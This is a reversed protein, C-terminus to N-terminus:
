PAQPRSVDVARPCGAVWPEAGPVGLVKHAALDLRELDAKIQPAEQQALSTLRELTAVLEDLRREAEKQLEFVAGSVIEQWQTTLRSLNKFTEDAIRRRFRQFVARRLLAMPILPSLMEWSHDFARGIKIDPRRPPKPTIDPETTRLPVGYVTMMREALRDRFEQLLRLCQRRVDALPQVFEDRKAASVATLKETLASAMWDDFTELLKAFSSPFAESEVSFEQLLDRRIADEEPALAKEIVQRSGAAAHRAILQLSFKTDKLGQREGLVQKQLQARESDLLEASRLTLRIYDGCERLLTGTKRDIIARRETAIDSAAKDIFGTEFRRRLDEYGGRTSYPYVEIVQELNRALQSNVFELVEQQEPESLVDVKTLLVAIRPTYELLKRILAIDQQTLPPDVSVAVLAIDVNPTWALSAETNHAFVSELGPTDVLRIGPFRAMEPIRVSVSFVGKRNHPNETEAIYSRLEPMAIERLHGNTFRIQAWDKDGYALDTVVSTVPIVGVPLLDRGILHNLFSSKGAKFRGLVAVSLDSRSLTARCSETLPTIASLQYRKALDQVLDVAANYSDINSDLGDEVTEPLTM